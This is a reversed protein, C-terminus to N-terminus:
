FFKKKSSAPNFPISQKQMKRHTHKRNDGLNELFHFSLFKAFIHFEFNMSNNMYKDFFAFWGVTSLVRFCRM